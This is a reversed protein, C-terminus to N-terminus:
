RIYVFKKFDKKGNMELSYFYTGTALNFRNADFDIEYEGKQQYENVLTSIIRGMLDFVKLQVFGDKNLSYFIRTSPNFPNPFNQKLEFDKIPLEENEVSTTTVDITFNNAFNWQDGNSNGNFNVSNGSAFITVTGPSNPATFEFDFTVVGGSPAKPSTHTLEDGIKQLGSNQIVSLTGNSAAINTGARVLPGGSISVRYTGKTGPSLSTPGSIVVNVSSTPNNGHCNCGQGNKRTKGTVGSSNAFFFFSSIVIFGVFFHSLLYKNHIFSKM